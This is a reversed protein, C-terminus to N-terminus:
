EDIEIGFQKAIKINEALKKKRRALEEKTKALEAKNTALEKEAESLSTGRGTVEIVDKKFADRTEDTTLLLSLNDILEDRLQIVHPNLHYAWTPNKGLLVTLDYRMESMDEFEMDWIDDVSAVKYKELLNKMDEQPTGELTIQEIAWTNDATTTQAPASLAGFGLFLSVLAIRAHSLLLNKNTWSSEKEQSSTLSLSNKM